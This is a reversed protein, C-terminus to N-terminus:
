PRRRLTLDRCDHPLDRGVGQGAVGLERGKLAESGARGRRVGQWTVGLERGKWAESRAMGRKVGQGTM